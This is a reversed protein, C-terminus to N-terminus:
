MEFLDSSRRNWTLNSKKEENVLWLRAALFAIFHNAPLLPERKQGKMSRFQSGFGKAVGLFFISFEEIWKVLYFFKNVSIGPFWKGM